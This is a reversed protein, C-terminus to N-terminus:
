QQRFDAFAAFFVLIEIRGALALGSAWLGIAAGGEGQIYSSDVLNAVSNISGIGTSLASEFPMGLITFGFIGVSLTLIFLFFYSWIAKIARAGFLGDTFRNAMIANPFVLQRAEALSNSMMVGLRYLKIGGSTSFTTAGGMALMFSLLLPVSIGANPNHTIGTTTMISAVDFIHRLFEFSGEDAAGNVISLLMGLGLILFVVAFSERHERMLLEFRRTVIMRHWIISTGGIIMFVILTIEATFNNFISGGSATPLFGNTSMAATSALVADLPRVGQAFLLLMCTLTLTAYPVAIEGLTRLLRPGGAGTGHLVFRLDRNPVGGVRYPSLVYVILALTLFGGFWATVARYTKMPTSIMDVSVSTTGLSTTASVAEFWARHLSMGELLIFPLTAASALTLWCCLSMVFIRGRSLKRDQGNFSLLIIASFFLYAIILLAFGEIMAENQGIVAVGFPACLCFAFGALILSCISLITPM